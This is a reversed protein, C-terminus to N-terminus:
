ISGRVDQVPFYPFQQSVAYITLCMIVIYVLLYIDFRTFKIIYYYTRKGDHFGKAEMAAAMRHARRISGSILPISYRKIQQIYALPHHKARVGRVYLANRITQFEEVMLPLVRAGAMFGYAFKPKLKCQQMLSYFLAQPQTTFLIMLGLLGFSLSRFGLHVGRYFSEETISILGWQFWVTSGKGFFMMSTSTSIFVFLFPLSIVIIRKLRHGSFAVLTLFLMVTVNLLFTPDHVFLLGIFSLTLLALKFTPNAKHLWTKRKAELM